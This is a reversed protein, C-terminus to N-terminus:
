LKRLILNYHSFIDNHRTQIYHHDGKVGSIYLQTYTQFVMNRISLSYLPDHEHGRPMGYYEKFRILEINPELGNRLARKAIYFLSHGHKKQSQIFMVHM